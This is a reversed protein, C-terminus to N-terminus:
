IRRDIEDLRDRMQAMETQHMNAMRLMAVSLSFRGDERKEALGEDILAQMARTVASASLGTAQTLQQNSIGTLTHGRLAKLVRLGKHLATASSM